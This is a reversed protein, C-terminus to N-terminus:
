FFDIYTVRIGLDINLLYISFSTYKKRKYYTINKIRISCRKPIFKMKKVQKRKKEIKQCRLMKRLHMTCMTVVAWRENMRERKKQTRENEKLM